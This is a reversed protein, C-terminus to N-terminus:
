LCQVEEEIMKKIANVMQADTKEESKINKSEAIIIKRILSAAKKEDVKIENEENMTDLSRRLKMYKKMFMM